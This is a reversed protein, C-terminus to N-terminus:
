LDHVVVDAFVQLLLADDEEAHVLTQGLVLVQHALVEARDHWGAVVAVGRQVGGDPRAAREDVHWRADLNVDGQLGVEADVGLVHALELARQDDGVLAATNM